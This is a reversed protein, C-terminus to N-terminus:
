RWTEFAHGHAALVEEAARLGQDFAEEFLAIGSLDSHAFHINRYPMAAAKRAQSWIFGPAPRIMAHGWRMIDIRETIARIDPHARELDSLAVDAWEAHGAQLLKHRGAAADSDLVPYYYTIITPGHDLGRQHTSVVYGLSPSDYLVNDWATEFGRGVLRERLTLNAVMWPGYEFASVHAPRADRYDRIVHAALFQPAAFIVSRARIGAAQVRGHGDDVLAIVEVGSPQGSPQASPQASATGSPRIDAAAWGVRTRDGINRALQAVLRGNGEPWTVVPQYDSGPEKLRAAYYFLAAWASTHAMGVGYDDRCGYDVYWRLRPSTFKKEDMWQAMSMRDLRTIEEDDSCRSQPLAFARRGRSDRWAALRGIEAEFAHRQAKDDASAGADLYLGEYWRGRYFVREEPDRCLYPEAIVPEGRADTGDLISMEALLRVMARNESMPATIYHAGWPYAGQASRGSRSTGGLVPELEILLFDRLGAAELRWAASLGAIGGGVIVVGAREWRDAAPEINPQDRARDRVLHGMRESQFVLEGPPIAPTVRGAARCAALAFPMGLFTQLVERRGPSM